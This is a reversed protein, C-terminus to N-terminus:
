TERPISSDTLLFLMRIVVQNAAQAIPPRMGGALTLATGAVFARRSLKDM